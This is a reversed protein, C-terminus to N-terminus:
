SRATAALKSQVAALIEKVKFLYYFDRLSMSMNNDIHEKFRALAYTIMSLTKASAVISGDIESSANDMSVYGREKHFEVNKKSAGFYNIAPFIGKDIQDAVKALVDEILGDVAKKSFSVQEEGKERREKKVQQQLKKSSPKTASM